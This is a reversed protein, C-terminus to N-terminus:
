DASLTYFEFNSGGCDAVNEATVDDELGCTSEDGSLSWIHASAWSLDYSFFGFDVSRDTTETNLEYEDPDSQDWSETTKVHSGYGVFDASGDDFYEDKFDIEFSWGGSSNVSGIHDYINYASESASVTGGDEERSWGENFQQYNTDSDESVDVWKDTSEEIYYYTSDEGSGSLTDLIIEHHITSGSETTVEVVYIGFAIDIRRTSQYQETDTTSIHLNNDDGDTWTESENQDHSTYDVLTGSYRQADCELSEQESEDYTVIDALELYYFCQEKSTRDGSDDDDDSRDDDDDDGGSDGGEQRIDTYPNIPEFSIDSYDSDSVEFTDSSDDGRGYSTDEAVWLVIYDHDTSGVALATTEGDEEIYYDTVTLEDGDEPDGTFDTGVFLVSGEAYGELSFSDDEDEEYEEIVFNDGDKSYSTAILLTKDPIVGSLDKAELAGNRAERDYTGDGFETAAITRFLTESVKGRSMADGPHFYGGTDYLNHNRAVEVFPAYWGEVDVDYYESEDVSDEVEDGFGLANVVMKTAEANNVPNWGQFEGNDYGKIWGQEKAYCVEEEYWTDVADDFCGTFGVIADELDLARVILTMMEARNVDDDPAATGDGNGRLINAEALYAVSLWYQHGEDIDDFADIAYGEAFVTGLFLSNFLLVGAAFTSLIRKM